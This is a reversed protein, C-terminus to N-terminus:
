SEWRNPPGERNAIARGEELDRAFQEGDEPGLHPGAKLWALLEATTAGRQPPVLEAVVKQGRCITFREGRYSVRNLYDALNRAFDTATIRTGSM